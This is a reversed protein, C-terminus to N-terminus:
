KWTRLETTRGQKTEAIHGDAIARDLMGELRDKGLGLAWGQRRIRSAPPTDNAQGTGPTQSDARETIRAHRSLGRGAARAQATGQDTGPRDSRVRRRRNEGAVHRGPAAYNNKVVDLRVFRNADDRDLGFKGAEDKRLTAMAAVSAM